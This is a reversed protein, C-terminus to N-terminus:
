AAVMGEVVGPKMRKSLKRKRGTISGADAPKKKTTDLPKVFPDRVEETSRAAAAIWPNRRHVEELSMVPAAEGNGRVTGVGTMHTYPEPSFRGKGDAGMTVTNGSENPMNM